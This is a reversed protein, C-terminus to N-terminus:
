RSGLGDPTDVHDMVLGEVDTTIISPRSDPLDLMFTVHSLQLGRV